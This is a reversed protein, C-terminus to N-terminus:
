YATGLVVSSNYLDSCPLCKANSGAYNFDLQMIQKTMQANLGPTNNDQNNLAYNALQQLKLMQQNDRASFAMDQIISIATQFAIANSLGHKNRCFFDTTDCYISALLNLGWNTGDTFGLGLYNNNWLTRDGNLQGSEIQFPVIGIYAGWEKRLNYNVPNCPGCLNTTFTYQNSIAKTGALDAEYYGLYFDSGVNTTDSLFSMIEKTLDAWQFSFAATTTVTWIKVPADQSSNYLYIPFNTLPANFQLGIKRIVMSLDLEKLRLQLGVFRNNPTIVNKIDGNGAYLMTDPLISKAQQNLNKQIYIANALKVASQNMKDQLYMSLPNGLYTWYAADTVAHNTGAQIAQYIIGLSSVRQGATYATVGSWASPLSILGTNVICNYINEVTILSHIDNVYIGSESELLAPTITPMATDLSERYGVLGAICTQFPIPNIM